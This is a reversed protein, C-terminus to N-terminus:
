AVVPPPVEAVRCSVNQPREHAATDLTHNARQRHVQKPVRVSEQNPGPGQGLSTDAPLVVVNDVLKTQGVAAFVAKDANKGGM